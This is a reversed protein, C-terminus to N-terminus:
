LHRWHNGAACDSLHTVKWSVMCKASLLLLVSRSSLLLLMSCFCFEGLAHLMKLTAHLMCHISHRVRVNMHDNEPPGMLTINFNIYGELVKGGDDIIGSPTHWIMVKM